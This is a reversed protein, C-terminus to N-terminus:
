PIYDSVQTLRVSDAEIECVNAEHTRIIGEIHDSVQTLRVSDAEIECVNAEHTRIIGELCTIM